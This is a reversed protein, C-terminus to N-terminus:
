AYLEASGESELVREFVFTWGAPSFEQSSLWVNMNALLNPTVAYITRENVPLFVRKAPSLERRITKIFKEDGIVFDAVSPDNVFTAIGQPFNGQVAVKWDDRDQVFLKLPRSDLAEPLLGGVPVRIVQGELYGAERLDGALDPFYDTLRNVRPSGELVLNLADGLDQPEFFGDVVQAGSFTHPEELGAASDIFLEPKGRLSEELIQRDISAEKGPLFRQFFGGARYYIVGDEIRTVTIVGFSMGAPPPSPVQIRDGVQVRAAFRRLRRMISNSHLGFLVKADHLLERRLFMNQQRAEFKELLLKIGGPLRYPAAKESLFRRAEGPSIDSRSAVLQDVAEIYGKGSALKAIAAIIRKTGFSISGLALFYKEQQFVMTRLKDVRKQLSAAHSRLKPIGRESIDRAKVDPYVLKNILQDIEKPELFSLKIPDRYKEELDNLIAEISVLANREVQELALGADIKLGESSLLWELLKRNRQGERGLVEAVFMLQVAVHQRDKPRDVYSLLTQLEGELWHINIGRERAETLLEELIQERYREEMGTASSNTLLVQQLNSRTTSELGAEARM